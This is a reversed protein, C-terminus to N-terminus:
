TLRSGLRVAVGLAIEKGFKTLVFGRQDKMERAQRLKKASEQCLDFDKTKVALTITRWATAESEEASAKVIVEEVLGLEVLSSYGYGAIVPVGGNRSLRCVARTEDASLRIPTVDIIGPDQKVAQKSM